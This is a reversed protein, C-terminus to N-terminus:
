AKISGGVPDPPEPKLSLVDRERADLMRLRENLAEREVDIAELQATPCSCFGYHYVLKSCHNCTRPIIAM